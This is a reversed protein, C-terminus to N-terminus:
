QPLQAKLAELFEKKLKEKYTKKDDDLAMQDRTLQEKEKKQRTEIEVLRNEWKILISKKIKLGDLEEQVEALKGTYDTRLRAIEDIGGAEAVAKEAASQKASLERMKAEVDAQAKHVADWEGALISKTKELEDVQASFEAKLDM